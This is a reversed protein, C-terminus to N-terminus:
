RRRQAPAGRRARGTYPVQVPCRARASARFSTPECAHRQAVSCMALPTKHRQKTVKYTQSKTIRTDATMGWRGRQGRDARLLSTGVRCHQGVGTVSGAAIALVLAARPLGPVLRQQLLAEHRHQMRGLRRQRVAAQRHQVVLVLHHAPMPCRVLNVGGPRALEMVQGPCLCHRVGQGASRHATGLAQVQRGM